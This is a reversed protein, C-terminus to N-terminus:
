LRKERASVHGLLHLCGPRIDREFHLVSSATRIHAIVLFACAGTCVSRSRVPSRVRVAVVACALATCCNVRRPWVKSGQFLAEHAGRLADSEQM